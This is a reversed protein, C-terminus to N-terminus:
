VKTCFINDCVPHIKDGGRSLSLTHKHLNKGQSLLAEKPDQPTGAPGVGLKVQGSEEGIDWHHCIWFDDM